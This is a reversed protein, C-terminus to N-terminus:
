AQVPRSCTLLYNLHLRGCCCEGCGHLNLYVISIYDKARTYDKLVQGCHVIELECLSLVCCIQAAGPPISGVSMILPRHM